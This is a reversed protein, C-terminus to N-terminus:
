VKQSPSCISKKQGRKDKGYNYLNPNIGSKVDLRLFSPPVGTAAPTKIINKTLNFKLTM